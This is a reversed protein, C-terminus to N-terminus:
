EVEVGNDYIKVDLEDLLFPNDFSYGTSKEWDEIKDISCDKKGLTGGDCWMRLEACLTDYPAGFLLDRIVCGIIFAKKGDDPSAKAHDFQISASIFAILFVAKKM